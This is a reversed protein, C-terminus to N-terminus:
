GKHWKHSYLIPTRMFQRNKQLQFQTKALHTKLFHASFFTEPINVRVGFGVLTGAMLLFELDLDLKISGRIEQLMQQTEVNIAFSFKM